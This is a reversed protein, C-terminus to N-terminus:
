ERTLYGLVRRARDELEPLRLDLERVTGEIEEQARVVRERSPRDPGLAQHMTQLSENLPLIRVNHIEGLAYDFLARLDSRLEESQWYVAVEYEFRLRENSLKQFAASYEEAETRLGAFADADTFAARGYLRFYQNLDRAALVYASITESLEPYHAIRQRQLEIERELAAEEVDLRDSVEEVFAALVQRIEAQEAGVTALRQSIKEHREAFLRLAAAEVSEGVMLEPIATLDRPVPVDGGRPYLVKWERELIEIEVRAVGAPLATEIVGRQDSVTSGYEGLRVKVNATPLGDVHVLRARFIFAGQASVDGALLGLALLSIGLGTRM